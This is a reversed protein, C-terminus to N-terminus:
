KFFDKTMEGTPDGFVRPQKKTKRSGMGEPDPLNPLIKKGKETMKPQNPYKKNLKPDAFVGEKVGSRKDGGFPLTKRGKDIAKDTKPKLFKKAVAAVAPIALATIGAAKLFGENTLEESFQKFTKM